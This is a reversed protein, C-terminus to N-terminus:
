INPHFSLIQQFRSVAPTHVYPALSGSLLDELLVLAENLSDEDVSELMLAGHFYIDTKRLFNATVNKVIRWDTQIFQSAVLNFSDQVLTLKQVILDTLSQELEKPFSKVLPVLALFVGEGEGLSAVQTAFIKHVNKFRPIFYRSSEDPHRQLDLYAESDFVKSDNVRYLAFYKPGTSLNIFRRGSVYGPINLVRERMHETNYWRNFARDDNEGIDTWIFTYAHGGLDQRKDM